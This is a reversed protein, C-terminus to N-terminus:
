QQGALAAAQPAPTVFDSEGLFRYLDLAHQPPRTDRIDKPNKSAILWWAVPAQSIDYGADKLLSLSVRERQEAFRRNAKFASVGSGINYGSAALGVFPIFEAGTLTASTALQSNTLPLPQPQQELLGAIKEALIAALQADDPLRALLQTPVLIIGSPLAAADRRNPSDIVYFRFNIRSPDSAPLATHWAPVLKRGVAEVRAQLAADHCLPFETPDVGRLMTSGFGQRAGAPVAAPDYDWFTRLDLSAKTPQNPSFRAKTALFAGGPQETATYTIWTNVQVPAAAALPNDYTITTKPNLLITYGGARVSRTGPPAGPQAAPVADIIAAGTITEPKHPSVAVETAAFAKHSDTGTIKVPQGLRLHLDAPNSVVTYSRGTLPVHFSTEPSILIHTGDVDFDTASALRTVVGSLVYEGNRTQCLAPASTALVLCCSLLHKM